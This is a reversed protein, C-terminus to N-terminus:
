TRKKLPLEDARALVRDVVVKPTKDRLAKAGPTGLSSREILHEIPPYLITRIEYEFVQIQQGRCWAEFGELPPKWFVTKEGNPQVVVWIKDHAVTSM